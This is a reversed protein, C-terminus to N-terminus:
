GGQVAWAHIGHQIYHGATRNTHTVGPLGRARGAASRAASSIQRPKAASALPLTSAPIWAARPYPPGTTAKPDRYRAPFTREVNPLARDSSNTYIFFLQSLLYPILEALNDPPTVDERIVGFFEAIIEAM